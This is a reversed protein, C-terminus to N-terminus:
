PLYNLPNVRSSYSSSKRVEFHLHPGTSNGSSGVYMITQGQKVEQGYKVALASGHAYLTYLGNYHKIMVYRGYSTTLEKAEIVIGDAVARIPQGYIGSGSYDVAGHYRGDSYYLGTTIKYGKVPAIFNVKSIADSGGNNQEYKDKAAEYQKRLAEENKKINEDLAKAQKEFEAIDKELNEAQSELKDVEEEKEGKAINLKKVTENRTNKSEELSNLKDDLEEKLKEQQEKEDEVKKILQQDCVTIQEAAAYKSIFDSLSDSGLIFDLLTTQGTQYMTILRQDLLEKNKVIKAQLEDLQKQTEEIEENSKDIKSNLESIQKEYDNIQDSLSKVEKETENKQSNVEKLDEKSQNIKNTVQNKNNKQEELEKETTSAAFAFSNTLLTCISLGTIIKTKVDKLGFIIKNKKQKRM